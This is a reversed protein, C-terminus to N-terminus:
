KTETSKWIATTVTANGAVGNSSALARMHMDAEWVLSSRVCAKFTHIKFKMWDHNISKTCCQQLTNEIAFFTIIMDGSKQKYWYEEQM